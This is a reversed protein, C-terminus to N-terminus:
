LCSRDFSVMALGGRKENTLVKLAPVLQSTDCSTQLCVSENTSCGGFYFNCYQNSYIEHCILLFSGCLFEERNDITTVIPEHSKIYFFDLQTASHTHYLPISAQVQSRRM